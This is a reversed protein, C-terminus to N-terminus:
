RFKVGSYAHYRRIESRLSRESRGLHSQCLGDLLRHFEAGHNLARLHCLEHLMVYDRLEAPLLMLSMNLNINRKSSCSGWNSRNHKIAVRNYSFGYRSALVFLRQPLYAHAEKSVAQWDRREAERFLSRVLLIKEIRGLFGM